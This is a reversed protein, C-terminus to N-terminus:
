FGGNSINRELNELNEIRLQEYTAFPVIQKMQQILVEVAVMDRMVRLFFGNGRDAESISVILKACAEQLIQKQRESGYYGIARKIIEDQDVTRNKRITANETTQAAQDNM